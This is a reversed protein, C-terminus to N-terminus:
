EIAMLCAVKGQPEGSIHPWLGTHALMAPVIYLLGIRYRPVSILDQDGAWESNHNDRFLVGAICCCGSASTYGAWQSSSPAVAILSMGLSSLGPKKASLDACKDLGSHLM